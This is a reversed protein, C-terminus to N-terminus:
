TGLYKIMFKHQIKDSLEEGCSINIKKNEKMKNIHHMVNTQQINFCKQFAKWEQFLGLQYHHTRKKNIAPNSKSHNQKSNQLITALSVLRYNKKRTIKELKLLSTLGAGSLSPLIGEESGPLSQILNINNRGNKIRRTTLKRSYLLEKFCIFM